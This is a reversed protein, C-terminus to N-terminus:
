MSAVRPRQIWLPMRLSVTIRLFRLGTLDAQRPEVLPSPTRDGDLRLKFLKPGNEKVSSSYALWRGDNSISGSLGGEVITEPKGGGASPQREIRTGRGPQDVVYYVFAGDPSWFPLGKREPGTTIQARTGDALHRVWVNGGGAADNIQFAVRRGDPSLRPHQIRPNEEDLRADVRGRQDIWALQNTGTSTIPVVLLTGDRAISPAAMNAAVLFPEGTVELREASFPVGWVGPNTTTRQYLLHGTPSYVPFALRENPLQLLTKRTGGDWVVLTDNGEKM